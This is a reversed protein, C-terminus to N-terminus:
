ASKFYYKNNRKNPKVSNIEAFKKILAEMNESEVEITSCGKDLFDKLKPICDQIFRNLLNMKQGTLSAKTALDCKELNSISDNETYKFLLDEPIILGNKMIVQYIEKEFGLIEIDKGYITILKQKIEKSIKEDKLISLIAKQDFQTFFTEFDELINSEFSNIYQCLSNPMTKLINFDSQKYLVCGNLIFIKLNYDNNIEPLIYFEINCVKSFQNIFQENEKEYDRNIVDIVFNNILENDDIDNISEYTEKNKLIFKQMESDICIGSKFLTLINSTSCKMKNENMFYFYLDENFDRIDNVKFNYKKIIGIKNDNSVDERKLFEFIVKEDEKENEIDLSIFVNRLYCDINNEVYDKISSSSIFKYNNHYFNNAKSRIDLLLIINSINIEYANSNMLIKNLDKYEHNLKKIQFCDNGLVSNIQNGSLNLLEGYNAAKNIYEILLTLGKIKEIDIAKELYLNVIRDKKDKDIDKTEIIKTILEENDVIVDNLLTLVNELGKLKIYNIINENNDKLQLFKVFTNYKMKNKKLISINDFIDYNIIGIEKFDSTNLRDIVAEVNEIKRNINQAGLQVLKIFEFDLASTLGTSYNSIYDLYNEDIYENKILFRIFSIHDRYEKNTSQIYYSDERIVNNDKNQSKYIHDIDEVGDRNFCFDVGKLRILDTFSMSSIENIENHLQEIESELSAKHADNKNIISKEREYYDDGNPMTTTCYAMIYGPYIPHYIKSFDLDKFTTIKDISVGSSSYSSRQANINMAKFICKLEELSELKEKELDKIQKEKEKLLTQNESIAKKVLVKKNLVIPILGMNEELWTYDLPFLNKYLSIAFLNNNKLKKFNTEVLKNYMIIYDNFTNKLIRMDPIYNSIKNIFEDELKLSENKKIIKEQIKRIEESTTIPNLIPVIQLVFEFFKARDMSNELVDSKLAYIFTVKERCQSSNNIITNLERLKTFTLLSSDGLRDLDEFIVLNVKTSQFFYIVEDAFRNILSAGNNGKIEEDKKDNFEAGIDKYTIRQLKRFRILYTILVFISIIAVGIYIWYLFKLNEEPFIIKNVQLIFFSISSILLTIFLSLLCPRWLATKNTRLINSHPLQEKPQSYLLQQLISREIADSDYGKENFSALSVKTYTNKKCFGSRFKKLYTKIVSSKGAGYNAAIAINKIEPECVKSNLIEAEAYYDESVIPSNDLLISADFSKLTTKEKSERM